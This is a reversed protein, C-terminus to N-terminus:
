YKLFSENFLPDRVTHRKIPYNIILKCFKNKRKWLARKGIKVRSVLYRSRAEASIIIYYYIFWCARNTPPKRLKFNSSVNRPKKPSWHIMQEPESQCFIRPSFEGITVRLAAVNEFRNAFGLYLSIAFNLVCKWFEIYKAVVKRGKEIVEKLGSQLM